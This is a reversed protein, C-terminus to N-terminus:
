WQSYTTGDLATENSSSHVDSIGPQQQDISYVGEDEVAQWDSNTHTFPDVPLQKIYGATVLDDLSQPAKDKDETYQSIMSRLTFLDQRLVTEKAHVVSVKYNPVAIALLILAISIVVMMEILTFGAAAKGKAAPHRHFRRYTGVRPKM